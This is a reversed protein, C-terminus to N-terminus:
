RRVEDTLIKQLFVVDFFQGNKIAIERLGGTIIYNNKRHLNISIDNDTTIVSVLSHIGRKLAEVELTMLLKQAVGRHRFEKHTYISIEATSRYGDISRFPSVCAWGAVQRDILATLAFYADGDSHAALWEATDEITKQHSSLYANTNLIADNWINNIAWIDEQDTMRIEIM